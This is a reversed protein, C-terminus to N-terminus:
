ILRSRPNPRVQRVALGSFQPHIVPLNDVADTMHELDAATALIRGGGLGGM